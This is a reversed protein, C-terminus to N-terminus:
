QSPPPPHGEPCGLSVWTKYLRVYHEVMLANIEEFFAKADDNPLVERAETRKEKMVDLIKKTDQFCDVMECIKELIQPGRSSQEMVVAAGFACELDSRESVRAVIEPFPIGERCWLKIGSPLAETKTSM